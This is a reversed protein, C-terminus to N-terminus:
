YSGVMADLWKQEAIGVDTPNIAFYGVGAAEEIANALTFALFAAVQPRERMITADSYVFLPRSLPYTNHVVVDNSIAVGDVALANVKDVNNAYYAYGFFGVAHISGAVGRLLVNDDESLQTNPASLIPETDRDFIEEIFYDFTGSDTGPIFRLINKNPWQPNVDSWKELTFIRALQGHTADHVWTNDPHVVVALADTAIRFEVPTRGIESCAAIESEKIPRSANAIDTEGASCFREFGGGTGVSQISINNGYGEDNFRAAIAESLPFVTSSGAVLIDGNVQLPNVDPFVGEGNDIVWAFNDGDDPPRPCGILAIILVSIMLFSIVQYKM